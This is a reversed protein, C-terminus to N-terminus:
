PSTSSWTRANRRLHRSLRFRAGSVKRLATQLRPTELAHLLKRDRGRTGRWPVRRGSDQGEGQGVRERDRERVRERTGRGTGTGPGEGPGEGSQLGERGRPQAGMATGSGQGQRQLRVLTACPSLLARRSHVCVRTEGRRAQALDTGPGTSQLCMSPWHKVHEDCTEVDIVPRM